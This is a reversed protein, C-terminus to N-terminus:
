RFHVSINFDPQLFAIIEIVLKMILTINAFLHVDFCFYGFIAHGAPLRYLEILSGSREFLRFYALFRDLELEPFCNESFILVSIPVKKGSGALTCWFSCRDTM